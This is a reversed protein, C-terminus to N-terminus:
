IVDSCLEELDMSESLTKVNDSSILKCDTIDLKKLRQLQNPIKKLCENTINTGSVNLIQMMKCHKLLTTIVHEDLSSNAPLVLRSLRECKELLFCVTEKSIKKCFQLDLEELSSYCCRALKQLAEDGVRKCGRISIRKLHFQSSLAICSIGLTGVLRCESLDWDSILCNETLSQIGFDDVNCAYFSVSKLNPCGKGLIPLSASTVNFCSDLKLNELVACNEGIMRVVFDNVQLCMSLDLIQVSNLNQLIGSLTDVSIQTCKSLNLEVLSKKSSELFKGLEKGNIKVCESINLLSLRPISSTPLSAFSHHSLQTCGAINLVQIDHCQQLLSHLATDGIIECRSLSISRLSSFTSITSLAVDVCYLFFWKSWWM